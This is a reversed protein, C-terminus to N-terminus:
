GEIKKELEILEEKIESILEEGEIKNINGDKVDRELSAYNNQIVLFENNLNTFEEDSLEGEKEMLNVRVNIIENWLSALEGELEDYYDIVPRSEEPIFKETATKQEPESRSEAERSVVLFILGGFMMLFIVGLIVARNKKNNEKKM